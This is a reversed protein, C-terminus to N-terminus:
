PSRENLRASQSLPLSAEAHILFCWAEARSATHSLPLSPEAHILLFWANARAATSLRASETTRRILTPRTSTTLLAGALDVRAFDNASTWRETVDSSMRDLSEIQESLLHKRTAEQAAM